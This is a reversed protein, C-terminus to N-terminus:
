SELFMAYHDYLDPSIKACGANWPKVAGPFNWMRGKGKHSRNHSTFACVGHEPGWRHGHQIKHSMWAQDSGVSAGASGKFNRIRAQMPSKVPDFDRWVNEHAGERVAWMSGNYYAHRGRVAAFDGAFDFLDTIEAKIVTDLDISVFIPRGHSVPDLAHQIDSSFLPLRRYCNMNGGRLKLGPPDSWLPFTRCETIGAPMDTICTVTHPTKVYTRLMRALANVHAAGYVPRWGKWLFTCFNIM